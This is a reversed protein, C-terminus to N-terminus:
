PFRKGLRMSFTASPAVIIHDHVQIDIAQCAAMIKQTQAADNASPKAEGSPHNHVLIIATAGLNLAERLIERPHSQVSNVTGRWLTKDALLRNEANLFLVRFHECRLSAMDMRLYNHLIQSTSFVDGGTALKKWGHLMANAMNGISNAVREPVDIGCTKLEELSTFVAVISGFRSILSASLDRAM